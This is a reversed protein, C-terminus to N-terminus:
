LLMLLHDKLEKSSEFFLLTRAHVPINQCCILNLAKLASYGDCLLSAILKVLRDDVWFCGSLNLYTLKPCCTLLTQIILQYDILVKEHSTTLEYSLESMYEDLHPFYYDPALGRYQLSLFQLNPSNLLFRHLSGTTIVLNPTTNYYQASHDYKFRHKWEAAIFRRIANLMMSQPDLSRIGGTMLPRRRNIREPVPNRIHLGNARPFVYMAPRMMRLETALVDSIHADIHGIRSQLLEAWYEDDLAEMTDTSQMMEDFEIRIYSMIDDQIPNSRLRVNTDNSSADEDMAVSDLSSHPSVFTIMFCEYLQEMMSPTTTVFRLVEQITETSLGHGSPLLSELSGTTQRIGNVLPQSDLDINGPMELETMSEVDLTLKIDLQRSSLFVPTVRLRDLVSPSPTDVGLDLLQVFQGNSHRVALLFQAWQLTRQIGPTRFIFPKALAMLSKCAMSVEKLCRLDNDFDKCIAYNTEGWIM